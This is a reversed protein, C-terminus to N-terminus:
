SKKTIVSNRRHFLYYFDGWIHFLRHGLQGRKTMGYKQFIRFHQFEHWLIYRRWFPHKTGCKSDIVIRNEWILAMAYAGIGDGLGKVSEIIIGNNEMDNVRSPSVFRM